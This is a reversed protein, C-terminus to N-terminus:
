SKVRVVDNVDKQRAEDIAGLTKQATEFARQAELVNVMERVADVNAGELFGSQVTTGPRLRIQGVVAGADRVIGRADISADAGAAIPSGNRGALARGREDVLHGSADREFSGSRTEVISGGPERVFFGGGGVIALDFTRGTHKLTGQSADLSSTAVLGRDTLAVHALSKHFGDTSVNALNSASVDLRSKAANMATAMLAIGDM